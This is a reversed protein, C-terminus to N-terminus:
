EQRTGAKGPGLDSELEARLSRKARILLSELAGVTIGLAAAADINSTEEWYCLAIAARQREPLKALARAMRDSREAEYRQEFPTAAPDIPEAIDDLATSAPRRKRDIALNIVIRTLWTRFSAAGDVQWRPAHQWVRLFAEQAVEEADAANLMVRYAANVAGRLHRQLLLAYAARDQQAVRAMLARDDASTDANPSNPAAMAARGQAPLIFIPAKAAPSSSLVM